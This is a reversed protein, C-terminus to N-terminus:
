ALDDSAARFRGNCVGSKKPGSCKQIWAAQSCQFQAAFDGLTNRRPVNMGLRENILTSHGVKAFRSSKPRRDGAKRLPEPVDIKVSIVKPNRSADCCSGWVTKRSNQVSFRLVVVARAIDDASDLIRVTPDGEVSYSRKPWRQNYNKIANVFFAGGVKGDDFYDVEEAYFSYEVAPAIFGRPLASGLSLSM